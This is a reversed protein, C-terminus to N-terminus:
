RKKKFFSGIIELLAEHRDMRRAKDNSGKEIARAYKKAAESVNANPRELRRDVEEGFEVLKASLTKESAQPVDHDKLLNALAVFLTYYDARNGWRPIDAIEPYLRKITDLTQTFLRKVRNQEPFEDEYQEYLEYYQDIIKASGGQPGHLIGILLDSMMEIDSMRRIAAPSVIRNVAWDVGHYGEFELIRDGPHLIGGAPGAPDVTTVYWSGNRLQRFWDYERAERAHRWYEVGALSYCLFLATGLAVTWWFFAPRRSM